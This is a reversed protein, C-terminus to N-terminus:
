EETQIDVARRYAIGAASALKARPRVRSELTM